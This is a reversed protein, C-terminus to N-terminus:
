LKARREGYIPMGAGQIGMLMCDGEPNDAMLMNSINAYQAKHKQNVVTAADFCSQRPPNLDGWDKLLQKATTNKVVRFSTVHLIEEDRSQNRCGRKECFHLWLKPKCTEFGKWEPPLPAQRYYYFYRENNSGLIAGTCYPYDDADGILWLSNAVYKLNDDFLNIELISNREFQPYEESEINAWRDM